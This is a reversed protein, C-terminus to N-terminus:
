IFTLCMLLNLCCFVNVHMVVVFPVAFKTLSCRERCLLVMLLLAFRKVGFVINAQVQKVPNIHLAILFMESVIVVAKFYRGVVEFRKRDV